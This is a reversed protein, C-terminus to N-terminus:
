RKGLFMSAPLSVWIHYGANEYVEQAGSPPTWALDRRAVYYIPNGAPLPAGIEFARRVDEKPQEARPTNYDHGFWSRARTYMSTLYNINRSTSAIMAPPEAHQGLWRLADREDPDITIAYRQVTSDPFSAFWLLSRHARGPQPRLQAAVLRGHSRVPAISKRGANWHFLRLGIRM